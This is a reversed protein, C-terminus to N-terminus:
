AIPILPKYMAIMNMMSARPRQGDQPLGRLRGITPPRKKAGAIPAVIPNLRFLDNYTLIAIEVEVNKEERVITFALLHNLHLDSLM